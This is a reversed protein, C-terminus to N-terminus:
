KKKRTLFIYLSIMFLIYIIITFPNILLSWTSINYKGVNYGVNNFFHWSHSLLINRAILCWLGNFFSFEIVSITASLNALGYRWYHFVTMILVAFLLFGACGIFFKKGFMNYFLVFGIPAIFSFFFYNEQLGAFGSIIADFGPGFRTSTFEPVTTLVQNGQKAIAFMFLGWIIIIIYAMLKGFSPMKDFWGFFDNRREYVVSDIYEEPLKEHIALDALIWVLSFIGMGWFLKPTGKLLIPTGQIEAIDLFFFFVTNFVLLFILAIKTFNFENIEKM